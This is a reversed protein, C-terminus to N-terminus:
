IYRMFTDWRAYFFYDRLNSLSENSNLKISCKGMKFYNM